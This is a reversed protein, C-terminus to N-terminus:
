VDEGTDTDALSDDFEVEVDGLDAEAAMEALDGTDGGLLTSEGELPDVAGLGLAGMDLGGSGGADETEPDFDIDGRDGVLEGAGGASEAEPAPDVDGRGGIFDGEEPDGGTGDDAEPPIPTSQSGSTGDGSSGGQSEGEDDDDDDDDDGGATIPEGSDIVIPDDETGSGSQLNLERAAEEAAAAAEMLFDGVVESGAAYEDVAADAMTSAGELYEDAATGGGDMAWGRQDDFDPMGGGGDSDMGDAPDSLDGAVDDLLTSGLDGGPNTLDDLASDDGTGLDDPLGAGRGFTSLDGPDGVPASMDVAGGVGPAEEIIEDHGDALTPAGTDVTSEDVAAEQEAPVKARDKRAM